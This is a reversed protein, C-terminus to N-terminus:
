LVDIFETPVFDALWTSDNGQYFSVATEHAALARVRLIVPQRNKRQGVIQATEVDTSLHVFQRRMPKLGDRMILEVTEPATGHYLFQPPVAMEKQVGARASHGYLARIRGDRMEYRQKGPLALVAEIDALTLECWGRRHCLGALLDAVAVWGSEDLELGFRSPRHRLAQAIGKSLTKLPITM